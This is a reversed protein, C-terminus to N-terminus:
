PYPTISVGVYWLPDLFAVFFTFISPWLHYPNLNSAIGSAWVPIMRWDETFPFDVRPHLVRKQPSRRSAENITLKPLEAVASGSDEAGIIQQAFTRTGSLHAYM